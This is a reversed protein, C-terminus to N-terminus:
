EGNGTWVLAFVFALAGVVLAVCLAVIIQALLPSM